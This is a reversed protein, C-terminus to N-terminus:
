TRAPRVAEDSQVLLKEHHKPLAFMVRHYHSQHSTVLPIEVPPKTRNLGDCLVEEKVQIAIPYVLDQLTDGDTGVSSPVVIIRLLVMFATHREQGIAAAIHKLSVAVVGETRWRKVVSVPVWLSPCRGDVVVTEQEGSSLVGGRISSDVGGWRKIEVLVTGSRIVRFEAAEHAFVRLKEVSAIVVEEAVAM